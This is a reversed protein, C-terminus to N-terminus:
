KDLSLFAKKLKYRVHKVTDYSWDAKKTELLWLWVAQTRENQIFCKYAIETKLTDFKLQRCKEFFVKDDETKMKSAFDEYFYVKAASYEGFKNRERIYFCPKHNDFCLITQNYELEIKEFEEISDVYQINSKIVPQLINRSIQIIADM